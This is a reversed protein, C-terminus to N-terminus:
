WMGYKQVSFVAAWIKLNKQFLAVETKKNECYPAAWLLFLHQRGLPPRSCKQFLGLLIFISLFGRLTCISEDLYYPDGLGCTM